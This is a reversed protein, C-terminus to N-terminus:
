AGTTVTWTTTYGGVSVTVVNSQLSGSGTTTALKIQEGPYITGYQIWPGALGNNDIISLLPSGDGSVEIPSGITSYGTTSVAASYVISNKVANTLNIFTFATPTFNFPTLIYNTEPWPDRQLQTFNTTYRNVGVTIRLEDMYANLLTTENPHKGIYLDSSINLISINSTTHSYSIGNIYINFDYNHRDFAIHYWKDTIMRLPSNLVIGNTSDDASRVGATIFNDSTKDIYLISNGSITSRVIINQYNSTNIWRIWFEICFSQKGINFDSSYPVTLYNKVGDFIASQNYRSPVYESFINEQATVTKGTSENYNGDFHMLLKVYNVYLMDVISVKDTGKYNYLSTIQSSTLIGNYVRVDDIYGFFRNYTSTGLKYIGIYTNNVNQYKVSINTGTKNQMSTGNIFMTVQAPDFTIIVNYWKNSMTTNSIPLSSISQLTNTSTIYYVFNITTNAGSTSTHISWGSTTAGTSLDHNFIYETGANFVSKNFWVSISFNNNLSYYTNKPIYMYGKNGYSDANAFFSNEYVSTLTNIVYPQVLIGSRTTPAVADLITDGSIYYPDFNWNSLINVTDSYITAPVPNQYNYVDFSTYQNEITDIIIYDSSIAIAGGIIKTTLPMPTFNGLYVAQGETIRLDDIKGNLNWLSPLGPFNFACGIYLTNAGIIPHSANKWKNSLHGNIFCNLNDHFDRSFAIHNWTNIQITSLSRYNYGGFAMAITGDSYAWISWDQDTLSARNDLITSIFDQLPLTEINVWFEVCFPGSLKFSNPISLYQNNIFEVAYDYKGSTITPSTNGTPTVITQNYKSSDIPPYSDMHMLLIVNDWIITQLAYNFYMWPNNDDYEIQVTNPNIEFQEYVPYVWDFFPNFIKDIEVFVSQHQPILWTEFIPYPYIDWWPNTEHDMYVYVPYNEMPELKYVETVNNWGFWVKGIETLYPNLREAGNDGIIVCYSYYPLVKKFTNADDSAWATIKIDNNSMPHVAWSLRTDVNQGEIIQEYTQGSVLAAYDTVPDGNPDLNPDPNLFTFFSDTSTMMVSILGYSNLVDNGSWNWWAIVKPNTEHYQITQDPTTPTTDYLHSVPIVGSLKRLESGINSNYTTPNPIIVNLKNSTTTILGSSESQIKSDHQLINNSNYNTVGFQNSTTAYLPVAGGGVPIEPGISLVVVGAGTATSVGQPDVPIPQDGWVGTRFCGVPFFAPKWGLIISNDDPNIGVNGYILTQGSIPTNRYTIVDPIGTNPDITSKVYSTLNNYGFTVDTLDELYHDKVFQEFDANIIYTHQCTTSPTITLYDGASHITRVPVLDQGIMGNFIHFGVDSTTVNLHLSQTSIRIQDCVEEIRINRGARLTKFRLYNNYMGDYLTYNGTINMGTNNEATTSIEASCCVDNYNIRFGEALTRFTLNPLGVNAYPYVESCGVTTVRNKEALTSITITEKDYDTDILCQKNAENLTRFLLVDNVKEKYVYGYGLGINKGDNSTADCSIVIENCGAYAIDIKGGAILTKFQLQSGGQNNISPINNVFGIGGGINNVSTAGVHVWGKIGYAKIQKAAVDYWLQGIIQRRPATSGAFNELLNVLNQYVDHAFVPVDVGALALTTDKYNYGDNPVWIEGGNPNLNSASILYSNLEGFM